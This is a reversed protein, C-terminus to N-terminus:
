WTGKLLFEVCDVSIIRYLAYVLWVIVECLCIETVQTSKQCFACSLIFRYLRFYIIYYSFNYNICAQGMIMTISMIIAVRKEAYLKKQRILLKRQQGVGYIRVLDAIRSAEMNFHRTHFRIKEM